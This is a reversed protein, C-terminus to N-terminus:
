ALKSLANKATARVGEDYDNSAEAYLNALDENYQPRKVYDLATVAADRVKPNPNSKLENVVGAMGVVEEIPVTVEAVKEIEDAYLKQLTATTYIAYEKNREALAAEKEDMGSTDKDMIGLLTDIVMPDILDQAKDPANLTVQAIAEMANAQEEYDPSSLISVLENLDIIPSITEPAVIEPRKISKEKSDTTKSEKKEEAKTQSKVETPAVASVAEAAKAQVVPTTVQTFNPLLHAPIVTEAPNKEKQTKIPNSAYVSTKPMDYLSKEPVDYASPKHPEQQQPRVDAVTKEIPTITGDTKQVGSLDININIPPIASVPQYPTNGIPQIQMM